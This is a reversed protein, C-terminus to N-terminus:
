KLSLAGSNCTKRYTRPSCGYKDRFKRYFYSSNDYGINEMIQEVSLPTQSLLYAAQQLKRQQLLEKFN